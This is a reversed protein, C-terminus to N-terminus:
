DAHRRGRGFWRLVRQTWSTRAFAYSRIRTTGGATDPEETEQELLTISDGVKLRNTLEDFSDSMDTVDPKNKDDMDDHRQRSRCM